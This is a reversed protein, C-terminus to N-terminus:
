VAHQMSERVEFVVKYVTYGGPARGTATINFSLPVMSGTSTNSWSSTM